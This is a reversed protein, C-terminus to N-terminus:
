KVEMQTTNICFKHIVEVVGEGFSNSCVYSARELLGSSSNAVAAGVGAIEIMSLDNMQNGICLTESADVNLMGMLKKLATGKSQGHPILEFFNDESQITSCLTGFNSKYLSWIKKIKDMDGILLVKQVFRNTWEDTSRDVITFKLGEKMEFEDLDESYKFAELRKEEFLLVSIGASDAELLFPVLEKVSLVSEAWVKHKDAIVSGNCTIYPLDINLEEAIKHTSQGVRGTAITFMGGDATFRDIAEKVSPTVNNDESLLTGDLDSVILRIKSM